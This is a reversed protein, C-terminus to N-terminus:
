PKSSEAALQKLMPFSSTTGFKGQPVGCDEYGASLYLRHATETSILHCVDNGHSRAATELLALMAKSVGRFRADPSVYNCTIEGDNRVIGIGLVTEGEVAVLVVNDPHAIWSGVVAPTKNALWRRIIAPNDHHDAGCLELISRRLVDCAKAAEDIHAKRILM